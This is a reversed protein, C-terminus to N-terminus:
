AANRVRRRRQFAASLALSVLSLVVVNIALSLPDFALGDVAAPSTLPILWAEDHSPHIIAVPFGYGPGGSCYDFKVFLGACAM